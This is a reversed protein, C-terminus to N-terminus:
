GNVTVGSQLHKGGGEVDSVRILGNYEGDDREFAYYGAPASEAMEGGSEESPRSREGGV